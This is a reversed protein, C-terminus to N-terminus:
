ACTQLCHHSGPEEAVAGERRFLAWVCKGGCTRPAWGHADALADLLLLGRGSEDDAPVDAPAPPIPRDNSDTVYLAVRGSTDVVVEVGITDPAEVYADAAVANTVLESLVLVAAERVDAPLLPAAWHRATHVSAYTTPLNLYTM